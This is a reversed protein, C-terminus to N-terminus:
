VLSILYLTDRDSVNKPPTKQQKKLMQFILINLIIYIMLFILNELQVHNFTENTNTLYM